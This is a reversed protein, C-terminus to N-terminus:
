GNIVEIYDINRFNYDKLDMIYSKEKENQTEIKFGVSDYFESVPTNKLTKLYKGITNKIGKLKLYKMIFDFFVFEANRGM